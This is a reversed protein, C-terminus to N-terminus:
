ATTRAMPQLKEIKYYVSTLILLTLGFGWKFSDTKLAWIALCALITNLIILGCLVQRHSYGARHLRHFAHERHALAVNERRIFRRILTVTTDFWFVGYLIIWVTIPINYLRDAALSFVGVLFGLFYSGADGMFVRAKPWNWVLFGAVTVVLIWSLYAMSIAGVNWFFFGGIGFVYLAEVATLGDLGDMFNYLNTSWVISFITLVLGAWGAAITTYRSLHLTSDDGLLLVCFTAALLQAILRKRATLDKFDDWFGIVSVLIAGPLFLLLDFLSFINFFYGMILCAFWLLVFVIGAGLPTPEQHSSRANPIALLGKKAAYYCFLRVLLTSILFLGFAIIILLSNSM